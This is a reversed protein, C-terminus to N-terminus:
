AAGARAILREARVLHPRDLMEGELGVVGTAAAGGAAAFAEVIARARAIAEDSPTFARNIVPVQAPHIAMKALFGDRAAAEAEARLGDEDRFATFVTDIPVVGAAVAGALTLARAQRFLDTYAGSADRAASAGVDASLDEAGWTLGSLRASAGRYSGLTFLAAATETAIAVIRTSGDALGARAEAVQLRVDLAQVDTGGGAKPLMVGDPAAPMLVALDDDLLGTDLANLRVYVLPRPSRRVADAVFAAATERAAAKRGPAVSDELDVLLVDAGAEFAKALKRESDGPVFLLSRMGAEGREPSTRSTATGEISM